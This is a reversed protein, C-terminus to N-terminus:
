LLFILLDDRMHFARFASTFVYRYLGDGFHFCFSSAAKGPGQPDQKRDAGESKDQNDWRDGVALCFGLGLFLRDTLVASFGPVYLGMIVPVSSPVGCKESRQNFDDM